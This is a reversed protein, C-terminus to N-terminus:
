KTKQKDKKTFQLLLGFWAIAFLIAGVLTYSWMGHAGTLPISYLATNVVHLRVTPEEDPLLGEFVPEALLQLGEPARTETVRYRLNPDLGEFCIKGNIGTTLRGDRLDPSSCQAATAPQWASGDFWELLFEANPRPMGATDVKELEIRGVVRNVFQASGEVSQKVVLKGNEDSVTVTFIVEHADYLLTKDDGQEETIVYVHTGIDDATFSLSRFLISGDETNTATQLVEGNETLTFLFEGDQLERGVMKKTVYPQWTASAPNNIVPNGGNIYTTTGTTVTVPYPTKDLLYGNPPTAEFVCYSGPQLSMSAEGDTDTTMSGFYAFKDASDWVEFVAGGLPNGSRDTKHVAVRGDTPKVEEKKNYLTLTVTDSDSGAPPLTVYHRTSDLVYGAPAKTEVVYYEGAELEDWGARGTADTTVPSGEPEPRGNTMKYLSFTAGALGTKFTYNQGEIGKRININYTPEEWNGKFILLSQYVKTPDDTRYAGKLCFMENEGYIYKQQASDYTPKVGDPNKMAREFIINAADVIAIHQANGDTVGGFHSTNPNNWNITGQTWYSYRQRVSLNAANSGRQWFGSYKILRTDWEYRYAIAVAEQISCDKPNIDKFEKNRWAANAYYFCLFAFEPDVRRGWGFTPDVHTISVDEAYDQGATVNHAGWEQKNNRGDEFFDGSIDILESYEVGTEPDKFDAMACTAWYETNSNTPKVLFGSNLKFELNSSTAGNKTTYDKGKYTIVDNRANKTITWTVTAADTQMTTALIAPLLTLLTALMLLGGIARRRLVKSKKKQM